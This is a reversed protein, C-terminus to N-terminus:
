RVICYDTILSRLICTYGRMCEEQAESIATHVVNLRVLCPQAHAPHFKSVMDHM